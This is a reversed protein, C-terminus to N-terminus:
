QQSLALSVAASQTLTEMTCEAVFSITCDGTAPQASLDVALYLTEVGILYGNRWDQPGVDFSDDLFILNTASSGNAITMTGSAIISKDALDVIETQSQTTLQYSIRVTTNAALAIVSQTATADDVRWEINHLKMISKQLPDVFAGVDVTGQAFTTSNTDQRGRIFFSDSKAMNQRRIVPKHVNSALECRTIKWFVSIRVGIEGNIKIDIGSTTGTVL